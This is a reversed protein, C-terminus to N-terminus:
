DASSESQANGATEVIDSYLRMIRETPLHEQRIMCDDFRRKERFRVDDADEGGEPDPILVLSHLLKVVAGAEGSAALMLLYDNTQSHFIFDEDDFIRGVFTEVEEDVSLVELDSEPEIAKPKSKAASRKAPTKSPM